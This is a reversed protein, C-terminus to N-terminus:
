NSSGNYFRPACNSPKGPYRERMEDLLRIAVLTSAERQCLIELWRDAAHLIDEDEGPATLMARAAEIQGTDLRNLAKLVSLLGFGAQRLMRIVRLRAIQEAGYFRYGSRPNREVVILNNREWSRLADRSLGLLLGTQRMSLPEPLPVAPAGHALRGLADVAARAHAIEGRIRQLFAEAQARADELAGQAAARVLAEVPAKGGPYPWHLLLWALRMQDLHFPEFLRYGAPSRRAPPIFGWLEFQRVTNPHCGAARAIKATSLGHFPM